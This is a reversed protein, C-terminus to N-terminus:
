RSGLIRSNDPLDKHVKKGMDVLCDSGINTDHKIVSGSGIFTRSGVRVNGNLIAGTSIHSHSDVASGHEILSNSNIICNQGIKVGAGIIAGHHIITGAGIQSTPSVIANPSIISPINFDLRQLNRFIRERLTLNKIGGIGIFAMEIIARLESLISDDGLVKYGYKNEINQEESSVFGVIEFKGTFELVDIVSHAHGGTGLIIIKNKM